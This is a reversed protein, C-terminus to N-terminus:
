QAHATVTDEGQTFLYKILWQELVSTFLQNELPSNEAMNEEFNLFKVEAGPVALSFHLSNCSM